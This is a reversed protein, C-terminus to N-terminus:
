QWLRINKSFKHQPLSHGNPGGASSECSLSEESKWSVSDSHHSFLHHNWFVKLWFFSWLFPSYGVLSSWFHGPALFTSTLANSKSLLSNRTHKPSDHQLFSSTGTPSIVSEPARLQSARSLWCCIFPLTLASIFHRRRLSLPALNAAIFIIYKKIFPLMALSHDLNM